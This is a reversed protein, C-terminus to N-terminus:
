GARLQTLTTREERSRESMAAPMTKRAVDCLLQAVAPQDIAGPELTARFAAGSEIFAARAAPTTSSVFTVVSPPFDPVLRALLGVDLDSGVVDHVLITRQESELAILLQWLEPAWCVESAGLLAGVHDATARARATSVVRVGLEPPEEPAASRADLLLELEVALASAGVGLIGSASPALEHWLLRRVDTVRCPLPEGHRNRRVDDVLREAIPRSEFTSTMADILWAAVEGESEFAQEDM